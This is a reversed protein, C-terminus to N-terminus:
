PASLRHVDCCGCMRRGQPDSQVQEEQEDQAQQDNAQAPLVAHRQAVAAHGLKAMRAKPLAVSYTGAPSAARAVRAATAAGGSATWM